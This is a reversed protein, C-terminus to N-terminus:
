GYEVQMAAPILQCDSKNPGEFKPPTPDNKCLTVPPVDTYSQPLKGLTRNKNRELDTVTARDEGTANDKPNQFISIGTGHFSGQATTSTPNHDINDIAATTFIKGRLKPPCVSKQIEFQHCLNNGMSASISMVRDYSICIGLKFLADVLEKKGLKTTFSYELM